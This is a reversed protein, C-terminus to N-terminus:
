QNVPKQVIAITAAETSNVDQPFAQHFMERNIYAYGGSDFVLFGLPLNTPDVLNLLSQGEYPAFAALYVLGAVHTIIFLM